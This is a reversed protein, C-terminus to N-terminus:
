AVDPRHVRVGAPQAPQLLIATPEADGVDSDGGLVARIEAIQGHGVADQEVHGARPQPHQWALGVDAPPLRGLRDGSQGIHLM